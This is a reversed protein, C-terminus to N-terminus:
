PNMNWCIAKNFGDHKGRYICSLTQPGNPTDGHFKPVPSNVSIMQCNMRRELVPYHINKIHFINQVFTPFFPLYQIRLTSKLILTTKSIVSCFTAFKGNNCEAYNTHHDWLQPTASSDFRRPHSGPMPDTAEQTGSASGDRLINSSKVWCCLDCRLPSSYEYGLKNLKEEEEEDDPGPAYAGSAGCGTPKNHSGQGGTIKLCKWKRRWTGGCGYSAVSWLLSLHFQPCSHQGTIKGLHRSGHKM